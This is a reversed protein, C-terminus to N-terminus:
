TAAESSGAAADVFSMFKRLTEVGPNETEGRKIKYITTAPVGSLVALRDLQKLNLPALKARVQEASPINLDM